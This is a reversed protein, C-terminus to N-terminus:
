DGTRPVVVVELGDTIHIRGTPTIVVAELGWRADIWAIAEEAGLVFLASSLADIEALGRDGVLTLSRTGRAPKGTRPDLVDHFRTGDRVFFLEDDSTRAVSSARIRFATAIVGPRRPDPVQVTWGPVSEPESAFTRLDPGARVVGSVVGEARLVEIARDTAYGRILGELTFQTDPDPLELSGAERDVVIHDSGVHLLAEELEADTPVHESGPLFSWLQRLTEDTPDYAGETETALRQALEVLDLLGAPVPLPGLGSVRNLRTAPNGGKWQSGLEAVRELEAVAKSAGEELVAHPGRISLEFVTGM